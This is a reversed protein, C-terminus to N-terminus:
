SDARLNDLEFIARVISSQSARLNARTATPDAQFASVQSHLNAKGSNSKALSSELVLVLDKCARFAEVFNAFAADRRVLRERLFLFVTERPPASSAAPELAVSSQVSSSAVLTSSRQSPSVVSASALRM